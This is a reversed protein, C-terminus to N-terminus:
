GAGLQWVRWFESPAFGRDTPRGPSPHTQRLRTPSRRRIVGEKGDVDRLDGAVDARKGDAPLGLKRSIGKFSRSARPGFPVSSPHRVKTRTSSGFPALQLGLVITLPVELPQGPCAGEKSRTKPGPKTCRDTSPALHM